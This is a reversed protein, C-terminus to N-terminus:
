LASREPQLPRRTTPLRATELAAMRGRAEALEATLATVTTRLVDREAEVPQMMEAFGDLAATVARLESGFAGAPGAALLQRYLWCTLTGAQATAADHHCLAKDVVSDLMRQRTLDAVDIEGLLDAIERLNARPDTFWREYPLIAVPDGGIGNVADVNYALWRREGDDRPLDDRAALSDAVAGPHRLCFVFHPTLDLDAFVERWMPLLRATRPDKFGFRVTRGMRGELWAAMEDRICRVAPDAWWGVPLPQAHSAGFYGRGFLDLVRDHFEVLEWREWHGRPNGANPTIEDAMDCGLVSLLHAALSTGSRHMGIVVTITRPSSSM